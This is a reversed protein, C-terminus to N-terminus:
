ETENSQNTLWEQEARRRAEVAADFDQFRGLYRRQGGYCFHAEYKGRVKYVGSCGTTNDSRRKRIKTEVKPKKPSALRKEKEVQRIHALEIKRRQRACGCSTRNGSNFESTTLEIIKGCDCRCRWLYSSGSKMETREIAVLMGCRKGTIDKAKPDRHCKGCSTKKGNRLASSRVSIERGCDCRCRWVIYGKDREPEPEIATLRGFRDGNSIRVM